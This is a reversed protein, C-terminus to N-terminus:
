RAVRFSLRVPRSVNGAADRVQLTLRYRGVRMARRGVRGSLAIRARARPSGGPAAPGRPALRARPRAEGACSAPSRSRRRARRARASGSCRAAASGRPSRRARADSASAGAASGHARVARARRTDRGDPLGSDCDARRARLYVQAYDSDPGILADESFFSVCGAATSVGGPSTGGAAPAGDPGSERSVLETRGGALDRVYTEVARGAHGAVLNAAQSAFAVYGGEPSIM